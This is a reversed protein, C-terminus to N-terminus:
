LAVVAGAVAGIVVVALSGFNFDFRGLAGSSNGNFTSVTSSASTSTGTGSPSTSSASAGSSTSSASSSGSSTLSGSSATSSGSSTTSSSTSSPTQAVAFDGSSAYVQNIDTVNVAELTYGSGAPVIPLTFTAFGDSPNLNNAIAFSNHFEIDNVLELSFRPDGGSSSWSINAPTGSQWNTPTELVITAAAFPLLVALASIKSFM